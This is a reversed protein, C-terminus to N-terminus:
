SGATYATYTLKASLDGASGTTQIGIISQGTAYGQGICEVIDVSSNGPITYAAVQKGSASTTDPSEYVKLILSTSATKNFVSFGTVAQRNNTGAAALLVTDAASAALNVPAQGVNSQIAM